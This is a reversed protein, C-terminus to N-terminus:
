KYKDYDHADETWTYGCNPCWFRDWQDVKVDDFNCHPCHM